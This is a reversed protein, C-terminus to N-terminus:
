KCSIRSVAEGEGEEPTDRLTTLTPDSKRFHNRLTKFVLILYNTKGSGFRRDKRTLESLCADLESHYRDLQEHLQKMESRYGELVNPRVQVFSDCNNATHMFTQQTCLIDGM